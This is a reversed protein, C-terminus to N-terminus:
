RLFSVDRTRVDSEAGPRMWHVIGVARMDQRRGHVLSAGSSCAMGTSQTIGAVSSRQHEHGAGFWDELAEIVLLSLGDGNGAAGHEDNGSGAGPLGPSQGMANCIQNSRTDSRLSKQSDGECNQGQLGQFGTRWFNNM